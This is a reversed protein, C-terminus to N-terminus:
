LIIRIQAGLCERLYQLGDLLSAQIKESKWQVRLNTMLITMTYYSLCLFIIHRCIHDVHNNPIGELFDSSYGRTKLDRIIVMKNDNKEITKIIEDLKLLDVPPNLSPLKKLLDKVEGENFQLEASVSPSTLESTEYLNNISEFHKKENENDNTYDFCFIAQLITTKGCENLGIIPIIRKRLDIFVPEEIARYKNITFSNYKMKGGRVNGRSFLIISIRLKYAEVCNVKIGRM